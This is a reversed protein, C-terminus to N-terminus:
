TKWRKKETKLTIERFRVVEWSTHRQIYINHVLALARYPALPFNRLDQLINYRSNGQFASVQIFNSMTWRGGWLTHKFTYIRYQHSRRITRSRFIKSSRCYIIGLIARFACENPHFQFSDLGWLTSKFAYVIHQHSRGIPHSPFIKSIKCYVIGLIARFICENPHFQVNDM